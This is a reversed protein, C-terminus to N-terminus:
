SQHNVEKKNKNLLKIIENEEKTPIIENLKIKEDLIEYLHVPQLKNRYEEQKCKQCNCAHWVDFIKEDIQSSEQPEIFNINLKSLIIPLVIVLMTALITSAITFYGDSSNEISDYNFFVTSFIIFFTLIILGTVICILENLGCIERSLSEMNSCIKRKADDKEEKTQAIAPTYVIERIWIAYAERSQGIFQALLMGFLGFLIVEFVLLTMM